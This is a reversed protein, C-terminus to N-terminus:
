LQDYKFIPFQCFHSFFLQIDLYILRVTLVFTQCYCIMFCYSFSTCHDKHLSGQVTRLVPSVSLMDQRKIPDRKELKTSSHLCTTIVCNLYLISGNIPTNLQFWRERVTLNHKNVTDRLTTYPNGANSQPDTGRFERM